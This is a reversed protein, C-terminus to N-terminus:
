EYIIILHEVLLQVRELDLRHLLLGDMRALRVLHVRRAGVHEDEGGVLPVHALRAQEGVGLVDHVIRGRLLVPQVHLQAPAVVVRVVDLAIRAGLEEVVGRVVHADIRRRRAAHDGDVQGVIQVRREAVPKRAALREDLLGHGLDHLGIRGEVHEAFADALAQLEVRGLRGLRVQRALVVALQEAVLDDPEHVVGVDVADGYVLGVLAIQGRLGDVAGYEDEIRAGTLEEELDDVRAHPRALLTEALQGLPLRGLLHSGEDARQGDFLLGLLDNHRALAHEVRELDVQEVKGVDHDLAALQLQGELGAELDLLEAIQYELGGLGLHDQEVQVVVPQLRDARVRGERAEYEDELRQVHVVVAGLHEELGVLGGDGLRMVDPGRERGGLPDVGLHRELVEDKGVVALLVVDVDGREGLGLYAVDYEAHLYARGGSLTLLDGLDLLLGLLLRLERGGGSARDVLVAVLDDRGGRAVVLRGGERRLGLPTHAGYRGGIEVQAGVVDVDRGVVDLLGAEGVDQGLVHELLEDGDGVQAALDGAVHVADTRGVVRLDLLYAANHEHRLQARMLEHLHRVHQRLVLVQLLHLREAPYVRLRVLQRLERGLVHGGVGLNHAVVHGPIALLGDDDRARERGARHREGGVLERRAAELPALLVGVLAVVGLAVHGRVVLLHLHQEGVAEEAEEHHGGLARPVVVEHAHAEVGLELVLELEGVGLLEVVLHM